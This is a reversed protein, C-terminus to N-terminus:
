MIKIRRKEKKTIQNIQVIIDLRPPNLNESNEASVEYYKRFHNLESNNKKGREMLHKLRGDLRLQRMGQTEQNKEM